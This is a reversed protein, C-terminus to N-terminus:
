NQSVSFAVNRGLVKIQLELLYEVRDMMQSAVVNQKIVMFSTNFERQILGNLIKLETKLLQTQYTTDKTHLIDKLISGFTPDFPYSGKRIKFWNHIYEYILDVNTTIEQFDGYKSLSSKFDFVEKLAHEPNGISIYDHLLLQIDSPLSSYSLSQKNYTVSFPIQRLVSAPVSALQIQM